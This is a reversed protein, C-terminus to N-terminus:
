NPVVPKSINRPYITVSYRGTGPVRVTQGGVRQTALRLTVNTVGAEPTTETSRTFLSEGTAPPLLYDLVILGTGGNIGGALGTGLATISGYNRRYEMLVWASSDNAADAGPNNTGTGGGTGTIASREVPYYAYFTYCANANSACPGSAGPRPPLVFALIPDTGTVWTGSSTGPKRTSYGGSAGLVLTTNNPFVYAADRLRGAVYNQATQTESLLDNRTQLSSASRTTSINISLVAVMVIAVLAMGILLEILTFGQTQGTKRM